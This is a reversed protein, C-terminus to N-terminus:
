SKDQLPYQEYMLQIQEALPGMGVEARRTDVNEEDEIKRPIHRNDEQTFQTGYLQGRGSNVRV